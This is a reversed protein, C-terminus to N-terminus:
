GTRAAIFKRIDTSLQHGTEEELYVMHGGVYTHHTIKDPDFGARALAIEMAYFPTVIDHLGSATLIHTDRGPASSNRFIRPPAFVHRKLIQSMNTGQGAESSKLFRYDWNARFIANRLVAYESTDLPYDMMTRLHNELGSELTEGLAYLSLEDPLLKNPQCNHRSDYPCWKLGAQGIKYQLGALSNATSKEEPLGLWNAADQVIAANEGDSLIHAQILAPGIVTDAYTKARAVFAELTESPPEGAQTRRSWVTAALTPFLTVPRLPHSPERIRLDLLGSLFILGHVKDRVGRCRPHSTMGAIRLSGYSAGVLYIPANDRDTADLWNEVFRCMARADVRLDKFAKESADNLPRSLGTGVPDVFVLDAADILFGANKDAEDLLPRQSLDSLDLSYKKPGFATMHLWISSSGPGGNFLFMVPRQAAVYDGTAEYSFSYVDAPPYIEHPDHIPTRNVYARYPITQDALVAIQEGSSALRENTPATVADGKAREILESINVPGTRSHGPPPTQPSAPLCARTFSVLLFFLSLRIM